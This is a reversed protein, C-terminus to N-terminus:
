DLNIWDDEEDDESLYPVLEKRLVSDVNRIDDLTLTDLHGQEYLVEAFSCAANATSEYNAFYSAISDWLSIINDVDM